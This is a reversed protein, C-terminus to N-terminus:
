FLARQAATIKIYNIPLVPTARLFQTMSKDTSMMQNQQCLACIFSSHAPAVSRITSREYSLKRANTKEWILLNAISLRTQLPGVNLTGMTLAAIMENINLDLNELNEATYGFNAARSVSLCELQTLVEYIEHMDTVSIAKIRVGKRPRIELLGQAALILTAERVPTRSMGLPLALESELHDSDASLESAFILKRLESLATQTNSKAKELQKM